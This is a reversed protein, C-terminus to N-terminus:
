SPVAAAVKKVWYAFLDNMMYTVKPWEYTVIASRGDSSLKFQVDAAGSPLHIRVTVKDNQSAPDRWVVTFVPENKRRVACRQEDSQMNGEIEAYSRKTGSIELIDADKDDAQHDVLLANKSSKKDLAFTMMSFKQYRFRVPCDKLKDSKTSIIASFM